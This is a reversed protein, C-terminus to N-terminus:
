EMVVMAYAVKFSCLLTTQELTSVYEKAVDQKYHEHSVPQFSSSKPTSSSDDQWSDHETVMWDMGQPLDDNPDILWM